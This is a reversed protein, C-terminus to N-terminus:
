WNINPHKFCLDYQWVSYMGTYSAERGHEKGPGCQYIGIQWTYTQSGDTSGSGGGILSGDKFINIKQTKIIQHCTKIRILVSPARYKVGGPSGYGIWDM